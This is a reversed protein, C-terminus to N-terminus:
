FVGKSTMNEQGTGCLPESKQLVDYMVKLLVISLPYLIPIHSGLVGRLDEAIEIVLHKELSRM